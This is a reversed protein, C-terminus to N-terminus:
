REWAASWPDSANMNGLIRRSFEESVKKKLRKRSSHLRNTVTTVPLDLHEAVDKQSFGNLYFLTTVTREAKPLAAIAQLVAELLERNEAVKGPEPARGAVDMAADLPVVPIHKGRTLRDCHKFVIRRFWGPFAAPASLKDLDRYAQVFAEQVADQALHFDRLISCAYRCAPDQFRRVIEGFADLDGKKARVVLTKADNM